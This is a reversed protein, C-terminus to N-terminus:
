KKHYFREIRGKLLDICENRNLGLIKAQSVVGDLRECLQNLEVADTARLKPDIVFTGSGTRTSVLGAQELETYARAVTNPNVVLETALKRGRHNGAVPEVHGRRISVRKM